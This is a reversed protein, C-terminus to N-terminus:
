DFDEPRFTFHTSRRIIYNRKRDEYQVTISEDSDYDYCGNHTTSETYYCQGIFVIITVEEGPQIIEEREEVGCDDILIEVWDFAREYYKIKINKDCENVITISDDLCHSDSGNSDGCSQLSFGLILVVFLLRIQKM